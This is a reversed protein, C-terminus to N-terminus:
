NDWGCGGGGCCGAPMCPQAQSKEGGTAAAFTSLLRELDHSDCKPCAAGSAGNGGADM